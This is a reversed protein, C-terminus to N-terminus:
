QVLVPHQAYVGFFEGGGITDPIGIKCVLPGKVYKPEGQDKVETICLKAFGLVPASQNPNSTCDFVPLLVTCDPRNVPDCTSPCNKFRKAVDMLCSAVQGNNRNIPDRMKLEPIKEPHKVIDRCDSANTEVDIATWWASDDNTSSSQNGVGDWIVGTSSDSCNQPYGVEAQCLGIPLDPRAKAPGGLWAISNVTLDVDNGGNLLRSFFGQATYTKTVKVGGAPTPYTTNQCNPNSDPNGSCVEIESGTIGGDQNMVTNKSNLGTALLYVQSTDGWDNYDPIAAAGALAAADSTTQGQSRM